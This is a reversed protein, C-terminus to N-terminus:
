MWYSDIGFGIDINIFRKKEYKYIKGKGIKVM